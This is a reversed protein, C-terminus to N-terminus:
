HRDPSLKWKEAALHNLEQGLLILLSIKGKNEQRWIIFEATM